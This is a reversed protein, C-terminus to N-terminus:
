PAAILLLACAVVVIAMCCIVIGLTMLAMLLAERPSDPKVLFSSTATPAHTSSATM